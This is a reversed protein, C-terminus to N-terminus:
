VDRNEESKNVLKDIDTHDRDYSYDFKYYFQCTLDKGIAISNLRCKAGSNFQCDHRGCTVYKAM